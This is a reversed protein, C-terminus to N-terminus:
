CASRPVRSLASWRQISMGPCSVKFLLVSERVHWNGDLMLTTLHRMVDTQPAGRVAKAVAARVKYDDDQVLRDMIVPAVAFFATAEANDLDSSTLLQSAAPADLNQEIALVVDGWIKSGFRRLLNVIWSAYDDGLAKAVRATVLISRALELASDQSCRNACM